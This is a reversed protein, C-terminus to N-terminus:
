IRAKSQKHKGTATATAPEINKIKNEYGLNLATGLNVNKKGSSWWM